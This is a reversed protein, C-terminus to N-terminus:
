LYLKCLCFVCIKLSNTARSHTSFLCVMCWFSWSATVVLLTVQLKMLFSAFWVDFHDVPQSEFTPHGIIENPFQCVSFCIFASGTDTYPSFKCPPFFVSTYLSQCYFNPCPLFEQCHIFWAHSYESMSYAKFKLLISQWNPTRLLPSKFKKVQLVWSSHQAECM